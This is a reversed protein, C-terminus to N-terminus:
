DTGSTKRQWMVFHLLAMCGHGAFYIALLAAALSHMDAASWAPLGDLRLSLWFLGALPTLLLVGLGLGQVSSALGGSRPAVVKLHLTDVLDLKLQKINGFLYPFFHALGHNRLSNFVLVCALFLIVLGSTMHAYLPFGEVPPASLMLPSVLQGGLLQMFVLVVISAHLIRVLPKQFFGLFRWLLSIQTGITSM